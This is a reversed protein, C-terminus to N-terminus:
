AAIPLLRRLVGGLPLMDKQQAASPHVSCYTKEFKQSTATPAPLRPSKAAAWFSQLGQELDACGHKTLCRQLCTMLSMGVTSISDAGNNSADHVRMGYPWNQVQDFGRSVHCLATTSLLLLM